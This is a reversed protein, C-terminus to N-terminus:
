MAKLHLTWCTLWYVWCWGFTAGRAYYRKTVPSQMRAKSRNLDHLTM